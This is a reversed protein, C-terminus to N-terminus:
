HEQIQLHYEHPYVGKASIGYITHVQTFRIHGIKLIEQGWFEEERSQLPNPPPHYCKSIVSCIIVGVRHRGRLPSPIFRSM